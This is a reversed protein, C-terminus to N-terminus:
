CCLNTNLFSNAVCSTSRQQKENSKRLKWDIERRRVQWIFAMKRAPMKNHLFKDNELMVRSSSICNLRALPMKINKNLTRKLFIFCCCCVFLLFAGMSGHQRLEDLSVKDLAPVMHEQGVSYGSDPAPHKSSQSHATKHGACFTCFYTACLNTNLKGSDSKREGLCHPCVAYRCLWLNLYAVGVM